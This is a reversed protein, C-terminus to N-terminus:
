PNALLKDIVQKFTSFPQAGEIWYGNIYFTPTGTVGLSIALAKDAAVADAIEQSARDADFQAVDLGIAAAYGDLDVDALAKQHSFMQDYMEWAKGQRAAALFAKAAPLAYAHFSLPLNVFALALDLPYAAMVKNVTPVADGCYPCQFDAFEVMTVRAPDPGLRPANAGIPIVGGDPDYRVEPFVQEQICGSGFLIGAVGLLSVRFVGKNM